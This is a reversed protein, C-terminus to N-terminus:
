REYFFIEDVFLWAKEGKGPHWLPLRQLNDAEIKIYRFAEGKLTIHAVESNVYNLKTKDIPDPYQRSLLQFTKNDNSGWISISTPPLIYAQVQVGYCISIKRVVKPEKYAFLLKMPTRYGIWNPDSINSIAGRKGDLFTLSDKGRYKENPLSLLTCEDPSVGKEFLSFSVVDSAYWGEKMAIAKVDTSSQITFPNTYINGHVSDPATGDTTYIIKANKVYHRLKIVEGKEILFNENDISPPSLKIKIDEGSSKHFTIHSYKKKWQSVTNDEINTDSIYVQKLKSLKNFLPEINKSVSTNALSLIELYQLNTLNLIGNDTIKTGNLVLKELVTFKNITKVDNDSVPMDSLHLRILQKKVKLLNILHEHSYQSALFISANLAASGTYIPTVTMYHTNVSALTKETALEFHYEKVTNFNNKKDYLKRIAEHNKFFRIPKKFDAGSNIWATLIEKDEESLQPKEKPPMHKKDELPLALTHILYSSDANGPLIVSGSKGGKKFAISDTMILGGKSKEERHCSYCHKELVPVIMIQYVSANSDPKYSDDTTQNFLFNKGHTIEAGKHGVVLILVSNVVLLLIFYWNTKNKINAMLYIGFAFAYATNRHFEIESSVYQEADHSLFSGTIAAIFAVCSTLSLILNLILTHESADSKRTLLYLCLYIIYFGIPLHLVLPHFRGAASLAAPVHIYADFLFLIFSLIVLGFNLNSLFSQLKQM